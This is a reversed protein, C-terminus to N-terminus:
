PFSGAAEEIKSEYEQVTAPVLVVDLYKALYKEEHNKKLELRLERVM